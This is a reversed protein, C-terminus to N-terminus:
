ASAASQEPGAASWPTPVRPASDPGPSGPNPVSIWLNAVTGPDNRMRPDLIVVVNIIRNRDYAQALEAGQYAAHVADLVEAARLNPRAADEPRVRVVVEPQGTQPEPRVNDAGPVAGIAGAIERAARDMDALDDGYVKVVVPAISGSITEMIRESL